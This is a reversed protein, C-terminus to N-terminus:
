KKQNENFLRNFEKVAAQRAEPRSDYNISNSVELYDQTYRDFVKFYFEDLGNPMVILDIKTSGAFDVIVGWQMSPTLSISFDVENDNEFEIGTWMVNTNYYKEFAKRCEGKLNNIM